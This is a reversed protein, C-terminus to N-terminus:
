TDSSTKFVCTTEVMSEIRSKPPKAQGLGWMLGQRKQISEVPPTGGKKSFFTGRACVSDTKVAEVM